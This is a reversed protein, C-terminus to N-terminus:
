KLKSNKTGSVSSTSKIKNRIVNGLMNVTKNVHKGRFAIEVEFLTM